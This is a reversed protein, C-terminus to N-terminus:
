DFLRDLLTAIWRDMGELVLAVCREMERENDIQAQREMMQEVVWTAQQQQQKRTRNGYDLDEGSFKQLSSPGILPDQDGVRAPQEKRLAHPDNLDWEKRM